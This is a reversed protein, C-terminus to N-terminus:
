LARPPKPQYRLGRRQPVGWIAITLNFSTKWLVLLVSVVIGEPIDHNLPFKM